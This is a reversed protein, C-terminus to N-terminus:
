PETSVLVVECIHLCISLCVYTAVLGSESKEWSYWSASVIMLVEPSLLLRDADLVRLLLLNEEGLLRRVCEADLSWAELLVEVFDQVAIVDADDVNVRLGLVAVRDLLECLLTDDSGVTHLALVIDDCEGGAEVHHSTTHGVHTELADVACIQLVLPLIAGVCIQAGCNCAVGIQLDVM